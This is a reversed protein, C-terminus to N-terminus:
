RSCMILNVIDHIRRMMNIDTVCDLMMIIKNRYGEMTEAGEKEESKTKAHHSYITALRHTTDCSIARTM